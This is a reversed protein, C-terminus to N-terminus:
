EVGNKKKRLSNWYDLRKKIEREFGREVPTYFQIRRLEDPFYNQGSFGDPTDPDYQYDKGYGIEKMFRTPANLIHKPPSYSGTERATALVSKWAKYVSVSKPATALYVVLLAVSLDGEPSGLRKYSEWTSIALKLAEPDALGIDESAFRTLRRLIYTMDEGGSVMRAFWYLAADADSGRLSKHLASILNYHMEKDKDYSPMKKQLLQELEALSLTRQYTTNFVSELLNIFYRGDGDALEEIFRIGDEDLPIKKGMLEEARQIFVSFSESTHRNLIFVKCRSLLASNLEFSPNETTAGVLIVTGDEVYPLFIDQQSRSFRHIEDIFLLTGQGVERRKSADSFVKRVDSVGSFTASLQEFYLGVEKALLNAITTKGCGAPGWLICSQMKKTKVMQFLPGKESLLHAQGVVDLLSKPRLQFALPKYVATDFLGVM